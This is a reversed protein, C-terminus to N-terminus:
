GEALAAIVRAIAAESLDPATPLGLLLPALADCVTLGDHALGAYHTQRHLGDGYWLRFDVGNRHLSATVRAAEDRDRCRFLAYNPAIDPMTYLRDELGPAAAHRRYTDAMARWARLRGEWDDLEALGVAAHYESMKGNTGAIAGDRRGEIGFNLAQQAKRRTEPDRAIIAGGEGTAFAKTAHFSLAVPLAGLYRRPEAAAGLLCAAGDIVVPIGTTSQFHQWPAQPVPRGYPAVPMVLGVGDLDGGLREPDLMWSDPDIDALRLRYGCAEVASATAIFTFAPVVAFPRTKAARGATALIAGILAATGSGACAVCGAALGLRTALRAALEGELPGYNSYWRTTDIRRLYPLLRDAAPLLPRMVPITALDPSM